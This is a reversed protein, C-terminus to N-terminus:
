NDPDTTSLTGVTTGAPQNENVASSNISIDTPPDNVATVSINRTQTDSGSAADTVIFTVTRTSTSPNESTNDYGIARAIAQVHTATATANFTITLTASGTVSAANITGRTVSSVQVNLGSLVVGGVAIISLRDNATSNATIQATM